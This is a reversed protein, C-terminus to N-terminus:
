ILSRSTARSPDARTIVPGYRVPGDLEYTRRFVFAPVVVCVTKELEFLAKPDSQGDDALPRPM